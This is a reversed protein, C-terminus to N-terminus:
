KHGDFGYKKTIPDRHIFNKNPFCTNTIYRLFIIILGIIGIHNLIQNFHQTNLLIHFIYQGLIAAIVFLIIDVFLINKKVFYKYTYFVLPIFTIMVLSGVFKAFFLNPNDFYFHYEVILWVFTPFIILKLHEWTSENVSSFLGVFKNHNTWDYLFHTSCGIIIIFITGIVDLM